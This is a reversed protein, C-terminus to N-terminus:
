LRGARECPDEACPLDPPLFDVDSTQQVDVGACAQLGKKLGLESLDIWPKGDYLEDAVMMQTASDILGRRRAVVRDGGDENVVHMQQEYELYAVRFERMDEFTVVDGGLRPPRDGGITVKVDPKPRGGARDGGTQSGWSAPNVGGAGQARAGGGATSDGM